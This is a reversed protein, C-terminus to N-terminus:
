YLLACSHCFFGCQGDLFRRMFELERFECDSGKYFAARERNYLYAIANVDGTFHERLVQLFPSCRINSRTSLTLNLTFGVFAFIPLCLRTAIERNSYKFFSPYFLFHARIHGFAQVRARSFVVCRKLIQRQLVPPEKSDAKRKGTREGSKEHAQLAHFALALTQQRM